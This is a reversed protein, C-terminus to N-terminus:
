SIGLVVFVFFGPVEEEVSFLPVCGTKDDRAFGLSRANTKSNWCTVDMVDGTWAEFKYDRDDRAFDLSRANRKLEM